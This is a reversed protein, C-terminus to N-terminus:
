PIIRRRVTSLRSHKFLAGEGREAITSYIFLRKRASIKGRFGNGNERPVACKPRHFAYDERRVQIRTKRQM